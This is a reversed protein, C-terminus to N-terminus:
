NPLRANCCDADQLEHELAFINQLCDWSQFFEEVIVVFITPGVQTLVHRPGCHCSRQHWVAGSLANGLAFRSM